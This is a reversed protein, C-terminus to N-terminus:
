RPREAAEEVEASAELKLREEEAEEVEEVVLRQLRGGQHEGVVAWAWGRSQISRQHEQWARRPHNAILSAQPCGFPQRYQKM